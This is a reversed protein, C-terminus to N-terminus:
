RKSGNEIKTIIFETRRNQQRGEESQNDAQPKSSGFGKFSLRKTSIGNKILFQYVEKARNESLQDNLKKDGVNDTHGQIEICIQENTSLFDLLLNLEIMSSPLIEFKNTDFFLNALTMKAGVKIKELYLEVEFPKQADWNRLDYHKSHFLYGPADVDFSYTSGLPLVALFDGTEVSTNDNFMATETNLDVVVISAALPMKTEADKILGKVYTVPDPKLHQPLKFRYIDLEGFGGELNSSFLGETGDANVILGIEENHTNIPYGLNTPKQWGDKTIKSFFLDKGGMGPWGDSSFYLTKGDSHMFPTNEDYATNISPGLNVPTSWHSEATLESKWIDYGGFGGPRNSVFYLTNGDPSIAPQSEWYESNIVKGLNIAKGWQKGEKISLYIDCRGLGDPRNCGTFFLYKGDPSISQAGENFQATNINASLPMAKGWKDDQRESTYFDENGDVVRSFILTKGDATLAPFYDRYESNVNFGMNFPQYAVPRKVASIAFQCDILYKKSLGFLKDDNGKYTNQFQLFHSKADKYLGSGLETEGLNFLFRFDSNTSQVSIAKKYYEIAKPLQKLRKYVDGLQTYALHFKPDAKIALNLYSIGEEYAGQRLYQQADEYNEQARKVTSNQAFTHFLPFLFLVLLLKKM